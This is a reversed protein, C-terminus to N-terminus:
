LILIFPAIRIINFWLILDGAIACLKRKFEQINPLLPYQQNKIMTRLPKYNFLYFSFFSLAVRKRRNDGQIDEM